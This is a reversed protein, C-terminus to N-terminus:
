EREKKVLEWHNEASLEMRPVKDPIIMNLAQWGLKFGM